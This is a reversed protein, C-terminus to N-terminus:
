YRDGSVNHTRIVSMALHVRYSKMHYHKDIVQSLDTSIEQKRWWYFLDGRYLQFITSLPTLGWPGFGVRYIYQFSLANINIDDGEWYM